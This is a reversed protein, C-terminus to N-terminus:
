CLRSSKACPDFSCDFDDLARQLLVARRDVDTVFDNVVPVDDLPQAGLSGMKDVLDVLDRRSGHGDEAGVPDRARDLGPCLVTPKRDDVRGARENRFHVDFPLSIGILASLDDQDPMGFMRFNDTRHAADAAADM